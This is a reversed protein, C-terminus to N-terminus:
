ILSGRPGYIIRLEATESYNIIGETMAFSVLLSVRLLKLLRRQAVVEKETKGKWEENVESAHNGNM